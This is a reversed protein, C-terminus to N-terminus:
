VELKQIGVVSAGVDIGAAKGLQKMSEANIVKVSKEECLQRLQGIVRIDADHAIFVAELKGQEVAKITQKVGVVKNKRKLLDSM